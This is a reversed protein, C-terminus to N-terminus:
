PLRGPCAPDNPSSCGHPCAACSSGEPVDRGAPCLVMVLPGAYNRAEEETLLDSGGLVAAVDSLTPANM